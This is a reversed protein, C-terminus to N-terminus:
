AYKEKIIRLQVLKGRDVLDILKNSAIKKKEEVPIHLGPLGRELCHEESDHGL